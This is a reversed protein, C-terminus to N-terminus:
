SLRQFCRLAFGDELHTMKLPRPLGGRQYAAPTFATIDFGLPVLLGVDEEPHPKSSNRSCSHCPVSDVGHPIPWSLCAVARLM